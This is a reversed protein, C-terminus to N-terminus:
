PRARERGAGQLGDASDMWRVQGYEVWCIRPALRAAQHLGHHVLVVTKGRERVLSQLQSLIEQETEEDLESTPEDLLLVEAGTSLARALLTKQKMGGSLEGFTKHRHAWLGFRDLISQMRAREDRGIRKWWGLRPYLGMEVIRLLSVPHIPDITKQQPVYGPPSFLFPTQVYGKRIPALGLMAKLLTTKGAGNPGVIPLLVGRPIDLSVGCLVDQRGYAVHLNVCQIAFREDM